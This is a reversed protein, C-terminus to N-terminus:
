GFRVVAAGFGGPGMGFMGFAPMSAVQYGITDGENLGSKIEAFMM